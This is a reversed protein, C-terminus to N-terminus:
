KLRYPLPITGKNKMIKLGKESFVFDIFAKVPGTPEGRTAFYFTQYYPYENEGPLHGNVSIVKIDVNGFTAGHTIFSIASPFRKIVQITMGSNYTMIDYKIGRRKMVECDFNKYAGTNKRPIVIIIPEDPGGLEKWNTIDGRFIGRLQNKTLSDVECKSNVIIALPDTCFPIERYGYEKHRYYLAETTSALDSFGKSLYNMSSESSSIHLEVSIGTEKQFADLRSSEFAEFVQSSCSYRLVDEANSQQMPFALWSFVGMLILFFIKKFINTM